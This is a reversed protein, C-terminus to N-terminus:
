GDRGSGGDEESIQYAFSLDKVRVVGDEPHRGLGFGDRHELWSTHFLGVTGGTVRHLVEYAFEGIRAAAQVAATLAAVHPAIVLGALDGIADKMTPEAASDRLYKALDDTDERSRSVTLFIDLFYLPKGYFCLLGGEGIPLPDEDGVRDFRFTQPSYFSDPEDVAGHGHVVLADLRVDAEGFLKRNDHIILDLLSIALTRVDVAAKRSLSPEAPLEQAFEEASAVREILWPSTGMSM